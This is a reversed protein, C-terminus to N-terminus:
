AKAPRAAISGKPMAFFGVPTRRGGRLKTYVKALGTMQEQLEAKITKTRAYQEVTRNEEAPKQFRAAAVQFLM